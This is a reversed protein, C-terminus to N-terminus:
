SEREEAGREERLIFVYVRFFIIEYYTVGTEEGVVTGSVPSHGYFQDEKKREVKRPILHRRAKRGEMNQERELVLSIKIADM